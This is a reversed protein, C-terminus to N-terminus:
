LVDAVGAHSAGGREAVDAMRGTGYPYYKPCRKRGSFGERGRKDSRGEPLWIFNWRSDCAPSLGLVFSSRAVPKHWCNFSFFASQNPELAEKVLSILM